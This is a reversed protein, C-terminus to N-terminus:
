PLVRGGNVVVHVGACSVTDAIVVVVIGMREGTWVNTTTPGESGM